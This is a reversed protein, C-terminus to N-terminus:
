KKVFASIVGELFQGFDAGGMQSYSLRVVVLNLSPIIAVHQGNFGSMYYMDKPVGEWAKKGNVDGADMWFHAGYNGKKATPTPTSVYDAWGEALIREGNWVGDKLYLLGLRAWDRATAYSYSSGVFTGSPDPEITMSTVGIKNFLETYPFNWYAHLEEGFNDRIVQSVMNSTGSSYSWHTNPAFRQRKKRPQSAVAESQFLMYTADSDLFYEEDFEMGSSMRLMQDLTIRGRPDDPESWEPFLRSQNINLKGQNALVGVLTSTISKTMSWGILPTDQDFGKAYKETVITTDYLVVIARTQKSDAEQFEKNIVSVLKARDLTFNLTSDQKFHNFQFTDTVMRNPVFGKAQEDLSAIITHNLLTCGLGKRYYAQTQFFGYISSTVTKKSQDVKADVISYPALENDMASEATRGAVFVCSCLNKSYYASMVPLAERTYFLGFCTILVLILWIFRKSISPGRKKKM